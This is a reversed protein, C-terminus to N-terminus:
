TKKREPQTRCREKKGDKEQGGAQKREKRKEKEREREKEKKRRPQTQCHLLNDTCRNHHNQRIIIRNMEM